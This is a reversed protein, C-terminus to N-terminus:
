MKGATELIGIERCGPWYKMNDMEKVVVLEVPDFYKKGQCIGEYPCPLCLKCKSDDFM